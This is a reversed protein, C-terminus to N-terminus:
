RCEKDLNENTIYISADYNTWDKMKNGDVIMNHFHNKGHTPHLLMADYVEYVNDDDAFKNILKKLDRVKM